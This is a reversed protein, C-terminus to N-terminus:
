IKSYSLNSFRPISNNLWLTNHQLFSACYVFNGSFFIDESLHSENAIDSHLYLAESATPPSVLKYEFDRIIIPQQYLKKKVFRAFSSSNSLKIKISMSVSHM